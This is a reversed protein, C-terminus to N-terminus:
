FYRHGLLMCSNIKVIHPNKNIKPLATAAVNKGLGGQIQWIFYKETSSKNM